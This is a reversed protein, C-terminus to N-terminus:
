AATRLAKLDSVYRLGLLCRTATIVVPFALGFAVIAAKDGHAGFFFLMAAAQTGIGAPAIPLAGAMLIAPTAAAALVLPVEVGFAHSGLWFMIVFCSFYVGRLLLM